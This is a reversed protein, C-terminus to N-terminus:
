YPPRLYKKLFGLIEDFAAIVKPDAKMKVEFGHVGKPIVMLKHSVGQRALEEALQVSQESPVNTDEEGHVLLTPPFDPSLNYLPSLSKFLASNKNPDIGCVWEPWAGTLRLYQRIHARKKEQGVNSTIPPKGFYNQLNVPPSEVVTKEYFYPQRAWEGLIDGYGSVSVIAKPKPCNSFGCHLALFGGASYGVVAINDPDALFLEPGEDRVWDFADVADQCIAPLSTEPALRYDILVVIYGDRLFGQLHNVRTSVFKGRSGSIFSGGHIWLIVPSPIKSGTPKFVDAPIRCNGVIKYVFTEKQLIKM